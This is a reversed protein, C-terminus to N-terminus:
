GMGDKYIWNLPMTKPGRIEYGDNNYRNLPLTPSRHNTTFHLYLHLEVLAVLGFSQCFLLRFEKAIIILNIKIKHIFDYIYIKRHCLYKM